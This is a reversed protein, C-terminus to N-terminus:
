RSEEGEKQPQPVPQSHSVNSRISKVLAVGLAGTSALGAAITAVMVACAPCM